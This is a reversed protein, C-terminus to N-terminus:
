RGTAVEEVAMADALSTSRGEALLAELTRPDLESRVRAVAEEHLEGEALWSSYGGRGMLGEAVGLLRAAARVDGLAGRTGALGV